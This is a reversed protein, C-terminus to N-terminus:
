TFNILMPQNKPPQSKLAFYMGGRYQVRSYSSSATKYFDELRQHIAARDPLADLFPRAYRNQAASWQKVDADNWNELWRYDDTVKVGHYEDTVSRKPTPPPAANQALLPVCAAALLTKLFLCRTSNM